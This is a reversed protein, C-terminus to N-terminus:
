SELDIQELHRLFHEVHIEPLVRNHQQFILIVKRIATELTATLRHLYSTHRYRLSLQRYPYSGCGPPSGMRPRVVEIFRDVDSKVNGFDHKLILGQTYTRGTVFLNHEGAFFCMHVYIHALINPWFRQIQVFRVPNM